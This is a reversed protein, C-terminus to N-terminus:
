QTYGNLVINLVESADAATLIGNSDLDLYLSYYDKSISELPMEYSSDLVKQLVDASDSATVKGDNNADGVVIKEDPNETSNESLHLKIPKNFFYEVKYLGSDFIGINYPLVFIDSKEDLDLTNYYTGDPTHTNIFQFDLNGQDFRIIDGAKLQKDEAAGLYEYVDGVPLNEAIVFTGNANGSSDKVTLTVDGNGTSIGHIPINYYPREYCVANVSACDQSDIPFLELTVSNDKVATIKYPINATKNGMVASLASKLSEGSSLLRAAEDYSDCDPMPYVEEDFKGNELTLTLTTGSEVGKDPVYKLCVPDFATSTVSIDEASWTMRDANYGIPSSSTVVDKHSITLKSYESEIDSRKLILADASSSESIVYSVAIDSYKGSVAPLKINGNKDSTLTLNDITVTGRANTITDGPKLLTKDTINDYSVSSPKYSIIAGGKSIGSGNDDIKIIVPEDGDAVVPLPINYCPRTYSVANLTSCDKLAVPFLRVEAKKPTKYNVYKYPLEYSTKRLATILVQTLSLGNSFNDMLEDYSKGDGAVYTYSDEGYGDFDFHGNEVTLIISSNLSIGNEPVLNLYAPIASSSTATDPVSTTVGIISNYSAANVSYPMASALMSTCLALATYKSLNKKM